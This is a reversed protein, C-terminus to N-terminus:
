LACAVIAVTHIIDYTLNVFPPWEEAASPLGDSDFSAMIINTLVLCLRRFADALLMMINGNCGDEAQNSEPPRLFNLILFSIPM